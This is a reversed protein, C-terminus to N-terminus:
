TEGEFGPDLLVFGLAMGVAAEATPRLQDGHQEAWKAVGPAQAFDGAPQGGAFAFQPM